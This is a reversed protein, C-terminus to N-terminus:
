YPFQSLMLQLHTICTYCHPYTIRQWLSGWDEWCQWTRNGIIQLPHVPLRSVWQRHGQRFQFWCRVASASGSHAAGYSSLGDKNFVGLVASLLKFRCCKSDNSCWKRCFSLSCIPWVSVVTPRFRNSGWLGFDNQKDSETLSLSDEPPCHQTPNLFLRDVVM